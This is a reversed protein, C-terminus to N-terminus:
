ASQKNLAAYKEWRTVAYFVCSLGPVGWFMFLAFGHAIADINQSVNFLEGSDPASGDTMLQNLGLSGVVIVAVGFFALPLKKGGMFAFMLSVFFGGLFYSLGFQGVGLEAMGDSFIKAQFGLFCVTFSLVFGIFIGFGIQNLTKM